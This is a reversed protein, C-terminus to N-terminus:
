WIVSLQPISAHADDKSSLVQFQAPHDRELKQKLYPRFRRLLRRAWCGPFLSRCPFVRDLSKNSFSASSRSQVM